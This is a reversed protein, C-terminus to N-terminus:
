SWCTRRAAPRTRGSRRASSSASGTSSTSWSWASTPSSCTSRSCRTPASSSGRRAAPWGRVAAGHAPDQADLRHAARGHHGEAGGLMGGARPRRAARQDLPPAAPGAGRHARAARGPRRLRRGAADGAARRRDQGLRGRGPAAPEDSAPQGPRARDARRDDAPGPSSSRCAPDFAALLAGDGGARAERGGACRAARSRALVLQTVLAEEFRYRRQADTCRALDRALPDLEYAQHVTSCPTGGVVPEPLLEPVDDVLTLAFGVAGSPGLLRHGQHGPVAPLGGSHPYLGAITGGPTGLLQIPM